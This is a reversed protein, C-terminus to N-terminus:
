GVASLGGSSENRADIPLMAHLTTQSQAPDVLSSFSGGCRTIVDECVTTPVAIMGYGEAVVSVAVGQDGRRRGESRPREQTVVRITGGLPLAGRVTVVLTSLMQVVDETDCEVPPLGAALDFRLDIDAGALQRLLAENARVIASAEVGSVARAERESLRQLHRVLQGARNASRLSQEARSRLGSGEPLDNLLRRADDV